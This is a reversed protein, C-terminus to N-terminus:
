THSVYRMHMVVRMRILRPALHPFIHLDFGMSLGQPAGQRLASIQAAKTELESTLDVVRRQLDVNEAAVGRTLKLEDNRAKLLAQLESSRAVARVLEDEAKELEVERRKLQAEKQKLGERFM